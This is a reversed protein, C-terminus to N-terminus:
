QWSRRRNRCDLIPNILWIWPWFGDSQAVLEMALHAEIPLGAPVATGVGPAQLILLMYRSVYLGEVPGRRWAM